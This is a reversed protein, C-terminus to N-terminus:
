KGTHTRKHIKLNESRAFVKGCGSFPCAFPKEGTHVRIHNVLKYKAKFPRGERVCNEWHCVHVNQESGGVHDITLHSVIEDMRYFVKHCMIKTEPDIWCCINECRVSTPRMYRLFAGNNSVPYSNNPDNNMTNSSDTSNKPASNNKTNTNKTNNTNNYDENTTSGFSCSSSTSGSSSNTLQDTSTSLYIGNYYNGGIFSDQQQQQQQHQENTIKTTPLSLSQKIKPSIYSHKFSSSLQQQNHNHTNTHQQHQHQHHNYFHNNNNNM